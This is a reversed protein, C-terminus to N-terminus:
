IFHLLIPSWIKKFHEFSDLSPTIFLSLLMCPNPIHLGHIPFGYGCGSCDWRIRNFFEFMLLPFCIWRIEFLFHAKCFRFLNGFNIAFVPRQLDLRSDILHM